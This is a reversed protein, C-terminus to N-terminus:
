NQADRQHQIAAPAPQAQRNGFAELLVPLLAHMHSIAPREPTLGARFGHMTLRDLVEPRSAIVHVPVDWRAGEGTVAAAPQHDGLLIMVFDHDPQKRLYGAISTLAYSVANVYSPGLNMWDPEEAFARDVDAADYPTDTLVRQWDPQYPATPSFPAHTSITPLFVFLPRRSRRSVEVADLRALSFQDPIAWWGFQPGQYGLDNEGYIEDFRYFAGEPWRQRLGPMWAVTRYGHRAFTTVLTDRKQSMLLAYADPNRVETGSILSLHALWSSGGFTPSEVYASVVGRDTERVAADLDARSAALRQAFDPRDYTVAGYSEIFVLLVDAGNVLSLDSDMAPTAALTRSGGSLADVVLRVQHGYTEVVPKSFTPAYPVRSVLRDTAFLALAATAVAALVRRSAASATAGAVRGLAWRMLAYLVAVSVVAAGIALAVRWLSRAGALMATVDAVYRIDWFLNIDRGYLAPATVDAYRGIVLAVWAAGLWRLAARSPPGGWRGAIVLALLTVALEPSIDGYWRVAPTPWINHFTLSANLIVLAAVLALWGM